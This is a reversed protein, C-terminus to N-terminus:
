KTNVEGWTDGGAGKKASKKKASKKQHSLVFGERPAVKLTCITGSSGIIYTVEVILFDSNFGIIPDIVRVMQNPVWLAGDGQRWGQVTYTTELAKAPRYDREYEARSKCDAKSVQATEKIILLRYRGIAQSTTIASFTINSSATFDASEDDDEVDGSEESVVDGYDLDSGARQGKCIYKSFVDKSDLGTGGTLINKGLELSTTANGGSGAEIFILNGDADDTSLLQRLSMLRDLSEFVTEGTDIQHDSILSGTDVQTKINIGYPKALDAAIREIKVNRWQGNKHEASCDILDATKSRGKVGITISNEDYNIPTADVYGTLVKDAGIWVECIDGAKVRRPIETAGPWSRTIALNFDRAQREIGASIEVELWGGYDIGNVRLKVANLDSM